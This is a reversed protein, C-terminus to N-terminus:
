IPIAAQRPDPFLYWQELLYRNQCRQAQFRLWSLPEHLSTRLQRSKETLSLFEKNESASVSKKIMGYLHMLVDIQLAHSPPIALTTLLRRGYEAVRPEGPPGATLQGLISLAQRDRSMIQFKHRAHFRSLAKPAQGCELLHRWRDMVFLRELFLGRNMTTTLDSEQVSVTLPWAQLCAQAFLGSGMETTATEPHWVGVSKLGCSPSGSKFIIGAPPVASLQVMKREIFHQLVLTMDRTPPDLTILRLSQSDRILRMPTRPVGLGAEAEPCFPVLTLHQALTDAIWDSRKDAGDYRVRHGLLCASTAVLIRRDKPSGDTTLEM